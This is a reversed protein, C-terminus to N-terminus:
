PSPVSDVSTGARSADLAPAPKVRPWTPTPMTRARRHSAGAGQALYQGPLSVESGAATAMIHLGANLNLESVVERTGNLVGRRRDNRPAVVEDGVAFLRDEAELDPGSVQGADRALGRALRNLSDVEARTLAFM